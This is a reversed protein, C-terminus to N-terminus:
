GQLTWLRRTWPSTYVRLGIEGVHLGESALFFLSADLVLVKDAAKYVQALREIAKQKGPGDIAPCCLTDLWLLPSSVVSPTTDPEGQIAPGGTSNQLEDVMKKLKVM